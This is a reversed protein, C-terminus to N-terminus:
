DIILKMKRRQSEEEKKEEGTDFLTWIDGIMRDKNKEKKIYIPNRTNQTKPKSLKKGRGYGTKKPTNIKFLSVTKDKFGGVCKRFPEPIYHILWDYWTNKIPRVEKMENQEFKDMDDISVKISKFFLEKM